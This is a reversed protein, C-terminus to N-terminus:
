NSVASGRLEDLATQRMFGSFVTDVTQFDSPGLTVPLGRAQRSLNYVTAFVARDIGTARCALAVTRAGGNYFITRFSTVDIELLRAFALEFLDMQGQSLVRMLFGTKLQGSAALKDILKQASEAPTEKPPPPPIKVMRTAEGLAVQLGKPTMRYNTTIFTKLTDSVWDCMSAALQPPMDARSVLPEQLGTLARSKEVLTRYGSESIKATANRVLAMLVSESDSRALADTVPVGIHPRAAVAEQHEVDCHAILKLVDTETLLPSNLILPRAVEIRDDVLLLILDHPATADDALRQALAIRIAMEVDLTLRRLIERMLGRERENLGAGQIRYLSAVALYIEERSAGAQPNMALQALRGMDSMDHATLGVQQRGM